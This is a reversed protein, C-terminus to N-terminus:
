GRALYERARVHARLDQLNARDMALYLRAIAMIHRADDAPVLRMMTANIEKSIRRRRHAPVPWGQRIAGRLMVLEGRTAECWLGILEGRGGPSTADRDGRRAAKALRRHRKRVRRSAM